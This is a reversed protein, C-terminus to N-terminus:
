HINREKHIFFNRTMSTTNARWINSATTFKGTQFVGLILFLLRCICTRRYDIPPQHIVSLFVNVWCFHARKLQNRSVATQYYMSCNGNGIKSHPSVLLLLLNYKLRNIQRFMTWAIISRRGYNVLWHKDFKIFRLRFVLFRYKKTKKFSEDCMVTNSASCLQHFEVRHLRDRNSPYRLPKTDM